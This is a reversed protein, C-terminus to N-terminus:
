ARETELALDSRQFDALAGIEGGKREIGRRERHVIRFGGRDETQRAHRRFEHGHGSALEDAVASGGSSVWQEGTAHFFRRAEHALPRTFFEALRARSERANARTM